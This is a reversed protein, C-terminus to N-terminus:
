MKNYLTCVVSIFAILVYQKDNDNKKIKYYLQVVSIFITSGITQQQAKTVQLFMNRFLKLDPHNLFRRPLYDMQEPQPVFHPDTCQQGLSLM